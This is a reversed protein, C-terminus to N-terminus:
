PREGYIWSEPRYAGASLVMALLMWWGSAGMFFVVYGFGGLVASEWLIIYILYTLHKM